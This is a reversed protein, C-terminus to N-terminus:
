WDTYVRITPMGPVMVNILLQGNRITSILVNAFRSALWPLAAKYENMLHKDFSFTIFRTRQSGKASISANKLRNIGVRKPRQGCSDPSLPWTSHAGDASMLSVSRSYTIRADSGATLF